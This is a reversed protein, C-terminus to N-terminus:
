EIYSCNRTEYKGGKNTRPSPAKNANKGTLLERHRPQHGGDRCSYDWEQSTFCHWNLGHRAKSSSNNCAATQATSQPKFPSHDRSHKQLRRKPRTKQQPLGWHHRTEHGHENRKLTGPIKQTDVEVMKKITLIMHAKIRAIAHQYATIVTRNHELLTLKEM